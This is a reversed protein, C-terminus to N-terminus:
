AGSDQRRGRRDPGRRHRCLLARTLWEYREDVTTHKVSASIRGLRTLGDGIEPLAGEAEPFAYGRMDWLIVAGDDTEIVSHFDPEAPAGSTERTRNPATSDDKWGAKAAARQRSFLMFNTSPNWWGASSM